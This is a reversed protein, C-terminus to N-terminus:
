KLNALKGVDVAERLKAMDASAINSASLNVIFRGAVFISLNGSKGENNYTEHAPHDAIKLSKEYGSDSERDVEFQSWAAMGAAMGTVGAYDTITIDVYPQNDGDNDSERAYSANAQTFAVENMKVKEGEARTRKLGIVTEPLLEKLMRYEVPEMKAAPAEPTEEAAVFPSGVLLVGAVVCQIVSRM